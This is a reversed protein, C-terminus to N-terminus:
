VSWSAFAGCVYGYPLPLFTFKRVAAYSQGLVLWLTSDVSSGTLNPFITPLGEKWSLSLSYLLDFKPPETTQTTFFIDWLNM